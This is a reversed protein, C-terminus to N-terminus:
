PVHLPEGELNTIGGALPNKVWVYNGYHNVSYALRVHVYLVRSVFFFFFVEFQVSSSLLLKFVVFVFSLVNVIVRSRPTVALPGSANALHSKRLHLFNLRAWRRVICAAFLLSIARLACVEHQVTVQCLPHNIGFPPHKKIDTCHKERRLRM